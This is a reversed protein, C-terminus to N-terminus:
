NTSVPAAEADWLPLQFDVPLAEWITRRAKQLQNHKYVICEACMDSDWLGSGLVQKIGHLPDAPTGYLALFERAKKFGIQECRHSDECALASNRIIHEAVKMYEEMKAKGFMTITLLTADTHLLKWRAKPSCPHSFLRMSPRLRVTEYDLHVKAGTTALQYWAAPLIRPIDFELAFRIAAVPEPYADDFYKGRFKKDKSDVYAQAASGKEAQHADWEELTQPWDAEVHKVILARVTDIEYKLALRMVGTM